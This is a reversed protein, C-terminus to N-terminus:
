NLDQGNRLRLISSSNLNKIEFTLEPFKNSLKRLVGPAIGPEYVGAACTSCPEQEILISVTRGNLQERPVKQLATDLQDAIQQEAHGHTQPLVKPDTAPAFQSEPNVQGGARPSRGVFTTGQLGPVDTRAAGVTGGEVKIDPEVASPARRQIGSASREAQIDDKLQGQVDADSFNGQGRRLTELPRNPPVRQDRVSEAMADGNRALKNLQADPMDRYRLRLAEAANPDAKARGRLQMPTM